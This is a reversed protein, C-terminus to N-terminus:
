LTSEQMMELEQWRVDHKALHEDIKELNTFRILQGTHKNYILDERIYMEDILMGVVKQWEEIKDLKAVCILMHDVDNSFGAFCQTNDCLTRQSLFAVCGSDRLAKYAGASKHRVYQIYLCWKIMTPHWRM